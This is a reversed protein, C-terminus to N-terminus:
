KLSRIYLILSEIQDENLLGKYSAMGPQYGAVIKKEPELVSARIYYENASEMSGDTFMRDKGFLGKWTPGTKGEQTGDVSHCAVCGMSVSLARGQEITPLQREPVRVVPVSRSLDVGGFGAERLDLRRPEHITFYVAGKAPGGSQFRFDHRVELQMVPELGPLHVFVTRGDASLVVQGVAIPDVGSEGSRKYLGSGYAKSRRYNWVAALVGEPRVSAPDLPTAFRLLVGDQFSLAEVPAELAEGSLRIRGMGWNTGTRSDYIQFGCTFVSDGAPHMRAHLLPLNTELGLPILAGQPVRAQLDPCILFPVGRGYSLHMLKGELVGMGRGELWVQSACSNDQFHPIWVLPPTLKAPQEEGFGFHDGERIWYCASSPIFQGQQDTGSLGGTRPNLCLYPERAGTAIVEAHRGDPSIRTIGGTAPSAMGARPVLGGQSVYSTGDPAVAMDLAFARSSQSQLAVDAFNEYWDAEGSGRQDALRVLGNRTSVQLIGGVNAITLPEQLGSAFRRWTVEGLTAGALGEVLWVDGDFTVVAARDASLFAVDAPRVRRKWPNELPLAIGDMALGRARVKDMEVRTRVTHSWRPEKEPPPVPLALAESGLDPVGAERYGVTWLRKGASAELRAVLSAGETELTAGRAEVFLSGCRASQGGSVAWEKGGAEGLAFFLPEANGSVEWHRLVTDGRSEHWERVEAEGCRYRLVAVRGALEVGEFRWTQAPLPGKGAEELVRPARPDTALEKGSLAVGPAVRSAVVPSAAPRPLETGAKRHPEAYSVQAMTRLTVPSAGEPTRWIAAVRLLEQDFLVTWGESLPLLVGRVVVNGPQRKAPSPALVEVSTQVFPFDPEFFPGVSEVAALSSAISLGLSWLAGLIRWRL